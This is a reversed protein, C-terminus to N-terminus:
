PNQLMSAASRGQDRLWDRAHARAAAVDPAALADRALSPTDAHRIAHLLRRVRLLHPPAVSLAEVGLGLLVPVAELDAAAEGCVEVPCDAARGAVVVRQVLQLVAPHLASHRAAVCDNTRDVALVFQALDNTGVSLFDVTEALADARLAAAPVEVMAGLTLPSGPVRDAAPLRAHEEAAVARVRRVEEPDTVMPLLVRLAGGSRARLLARLQPRLLEDPCDLLRRVGRGGRMPAAERLGGSRRPGRDVGGVDLLRVTAGADGAADLARRYAEAQEDEGLALGADGLLYLETRLLGIGQAGYPALLGLENELGINARVTVAHGDATIPPGDPPTEPATTLDRDHRRYQERTHPTPHLILRGADGDVLVPTRSPVEQFVQPVGVLLPIQLAEAVVALHSAASGEETVCGLLRHRSLRLLDTATLARAILVAPAQVALAAEGQRLARLLRKELSVLEDARDRLYADDSEGMRKRPAKLAAAVAAEASAHTDRIRRRVAGLFEEDRLMLAQADLLTQVEDAAAAPLLAGVTELEQRARAVAADLLMIEADVEDPAISSRAVVPPSADYQTATGVAVGPAAATAALVRERGESSAEDM